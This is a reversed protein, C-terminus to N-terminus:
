KLQNSQIWLVFPQFSIELLAGCNLPKRFFSNEHFILAANLYCSGLWENAEGLLVSLCKVSQLKSRNLRANSLSDRLFQLPDRLYLFSLDHIPLVWDHVPNELNLLLQGQNRMMSLPQHFGLPRLQAVQILEGLFDVVVHFSKFIGELLM